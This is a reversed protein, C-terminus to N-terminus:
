KPTTPFRSGTCDVYTVFGPATQERLPKARESPGSVNQHRAVLRWPQGSEQVLHYSVVTWGEYNGRGRVLRQKNISTLFERIKGVEGRELSPCILGSFAESLEYASRLGVMPAPPPFLVYRDPGSKKALENRFWEREADGFVSAAQQIREAHIWIDIVAPPTAQCVAAMLLGAAVGM